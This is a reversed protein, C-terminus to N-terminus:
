PRASISISEGSAANLIMGYQPYPEVAPMDAPHSSEGTRTGDMTVLWVAMDPSYGAGVDDSGTLRKTAVALTTLEAHVNESTTLGGDMEPQSASSIKLATDIAAQRSIFPDPAPILQEGGAASNGALQQSPQDKIWTDVFYAMALGTITGAMVGGMLPGMFFGGTMYSFWVVLVSVTSVAIWAGTRRFSRRLIFWQAVGAVAGPIFLGLAAVPQGGRSIIRNLALTVAGGAAWWIISILAWEFPAWEGSHRYMPDPLFLGQIISVLSGGIVIMLVFGVFIDTPYEGQYVKMIERGAAEGVVGGIFRGFFWGVVSASLWLWFVTSSKM